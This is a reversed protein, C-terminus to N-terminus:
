NLQPNSPLNLLHKYDPGMNMVANRWISSIDTDFVLQATAQSVYWSGEKLENELQGASWGSYGVLLKVDPMQSSSSNLLDQLVDFSGGWFIGKAIEIGGLLEPLRHIMHLTDPQVPGGEYLVTPAYLDPMLDTLNLLMPKNLVFGLTGNEAHECLLVVARSFTRDALFPEAILINGSVVTINGDQKPIHPFNM